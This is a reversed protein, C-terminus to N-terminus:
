FKRTTRKSTPAPKSEKADAEPYPQALLKEADEARRMLVNLLEDDENVGVVELTNVVQRRDDPRATLKCSFQFPVNGQAYMANITPVVDKTNLVSFRAIYIAASGAAMKDRAQDAALMALRMGEKCAKGKGRIDTGFQNLPCVDCTKAQPSQAKEHPREGDYSYCTPSTPKDPDYITNYYTREFQPVLPIVTLENGVVVGGVTIRGKAFSVGNGGGTPMKAVESHGKAVLAALRDKFPVLAATEQKTM